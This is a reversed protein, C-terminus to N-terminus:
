LREHHRGCQLAEDLRSHRRSAAALHIESRRAPRRVRRDAPRQNRRHHRDARREKEITVGPCRPVTAATVGNLRLALSNLASYGPPEGWNNFSGSICVPNDPAAGDLETRTPMRREAFVAPGGFYFPPDGVPMTVIWEGPKASAAAARIANLVEGISHLGQLSLRVSKLGERELHAHADTIGPVVTRGALDISRTQPGRLAALEDAAGVAVIREAKVALADARPRSPDQTLIAGGSVVLDAYEGNKNGAGSEPGLRQQQARAALPWAAAAGGFATIFKRRKM